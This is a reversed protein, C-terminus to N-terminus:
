FIRWPRHMPQSFHRSILCFSLPTFSILIPSATKGLIYTHTQTSMHAWNYGVRQSGMLTAWWAGRDMSSELCSYQLSNGNGVRPNKGVWPDFKHRNHRGCTSEKGSTSGPFGKGLSPNWNLDPPEHCCNSHPNILELSKWGKGETYSEVGTGKAYPEM